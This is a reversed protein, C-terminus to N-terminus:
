RLQRVCRDGEPEIGVAASSAGGCEVRSARFRLDRDIAAGCGEQREGGSIAPPDGGAAVFVERNGNGAAVQVRCRDRDFRDRVWCGHQESGSGWLGLLKRRCRGNFRAASCCDSVSLGPRGTFTQRIRATM